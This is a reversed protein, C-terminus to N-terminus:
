LYDNANAIIIAGYDRNITKNNYPANGTEASGGGGGFWGGDEHRSYFYYGASYVCWGARVENPLLKYGQHYMAWWIATSWHDQCSTYFLYRRCSRKFGYKVRSYVAQAISPAAFMMGDTSPMNSVSYSNYTDDSTFDHDLNRDNWGFGSEETPEGGDCPIEPPIVEAATVIALPKKRSDFAETGDSLFTQIGQTDSPTAIARPDTFAYVTPPTQITGSVIIDVWHDTGNNWQNIVGHYQSYDHPRIFYIPRYSTVIKYRHIRMGSLVNDADQINYDPFTTLGAETTTNYDPKGLFHFSRIDSSVLIHGSDNKVLIGQSM